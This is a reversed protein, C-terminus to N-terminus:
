EEILQRVAMTSGTMLAIQYLMYEAEFRLDYFPESLNASAAAVSIDIVQRMYDIAQPYMGLALFFRGYNFETEQVAWM